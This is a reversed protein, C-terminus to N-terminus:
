EAIVRFFRQGNMSASIIVRKTAAGSPANTLITWEGRELHERQEVTYIRGPEGSLEFTFSGNAQSVINTLRPPSAPISYDLFLRPPNASESSGFHRATQQIGEGSSQIMWGHNTSPNAIWVRVDSLLDDNPGFELAATYPASASAKALYDDGPGGGPAAWLTGASASTWNASADWSTLVRYLLFDSPVPNQPAKIGTLRLRVREVRSRAPLSSFDFRLLGRDVTGNNRRGVLITQAGLPNPSGSSISTDMSPTLTLAGITPDIVSVLARDSTVSGRGADTVIVQYSGADLTRVNPFSLTDNTQGPIPTNDKLWQYQLPALGTAAVKLIVAEGRYVNTGRPQVTIVPPPFSLSTAPSIATGYLNMVVVTYPGADAPQASAISLTANTKGALPVGDHQWQYTLNTGLATVALSVRAGVGARIPPTITAILPSPTIFLLHNPGAAIATVSTIGPPVSAPLAQQGDNITGWALVTGNTRLAVAEQAGLQLDAIGSLGAPPDELGEGAWRVITRDAKIAYSVFQGARVAVVRSLAPPPTAASPFGWGVVTGDQKLVLVHHTGASIAVVSNLGAPVNTQGSSGSGWAVVTGNSRLAVTYSEGSGLDAGTGIAIVGALGPPINTVDMRDSGWVVVTGDAKLAVNHFSAAIAIVNTLGPPVNTQGHSNDGWAVVTGNARLALSHEQGAAIAIVDDM